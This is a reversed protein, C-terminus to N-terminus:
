RTEWEQAPGSALGSASTQDVAGPDALAARLRSEDIRWFGLQRGDVVVVPVEEGYRAALAPEADVDREDFDDGVVQAVLSRAEDCLHCGARSYLVVRSTM